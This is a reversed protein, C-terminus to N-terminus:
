NSESNTNLADILSYNNRNLLNFNTFYHLNNVSKNEGMKSYIVSM